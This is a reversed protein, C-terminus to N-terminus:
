GPQWSHWCNSSLCHKDLRSQMLCAPLLQLRMFPEHLSCHRSWPSDQLLAVSESFGWLRSKNDLKPTVHIVLFLFRPVIGMNVYHWTALLWRVLWGSLNWGVKCGLISRQHFVALGYKIDGYLIDCRGLIPLTQTSLWCKRQSALPPTARVEGKSGRYCGRGEGGPMAVPWVAESRITQRWRLPSCLGVHATAPVFLGLTGGPDM